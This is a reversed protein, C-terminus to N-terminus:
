RREMGEKRKEKSKITEVEEKEGRYIMKDRQGRTTVNDEGEERGM